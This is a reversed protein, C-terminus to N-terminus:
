ALTRVEKRLANVFLNDLAIANTPHPVSRTSRVSRIGNEAFAKLLGQSFLAHIAIADISKAGASTLRKACAILTSGSSVIDDLM